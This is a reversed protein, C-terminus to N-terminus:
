IDYALLIAKAIDKMPIGRDMSQKQLRKFAEQESLNLNKMLLGKAKEVEKRTDLTTKLEMIEKELAVVKKRSKLMLDVTNILASKNLPKVLCLFGAEVKLDDIFGVQTDSSILIVDCIRDEIAVRAVESGSMLPLDFDLIVLDPRLARIKRLCEHGDRAIEVIEYGSQTLISRIKTISTDNGMSVLIRTFEM